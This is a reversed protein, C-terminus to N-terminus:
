APDFTDFFFEFVICGVNRKTLGVPFVTHRVVFDKSCCACALNEEHSMTTFIQSKKVKKAVPEDSEDGDCDCEIETARTYFNSNACNRASRHADLVSTEPSDTWGSTIKTQYLNTVVKSGGSIVSSTTSVVSSTSSVVSSAISVSQSQQCLPASCTSSLEDFVDIFNADIDRQNCHLMYAQFVDQVPTSLAYSITDSDSETKLLLNFHGPENKKDEDYLLM